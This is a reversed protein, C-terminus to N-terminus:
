AVGADYRADAVCRAHYAERLRRAYTGVQGSGIAHGDVAVVPLIERVASSIWVEDARYLQGRTVAEERWRLGMAEALPRLGAKTIGPLCDSCPTIIDTGVRLLVNSTVGETVHGERDVYFAEHAGVSEAQMLGTKGVLYNTTKLLPLHRSAEFTVATVGQDYASPEPAHVERSIVVWTPASAGFVGSTNVGPTVLLNVRLEAHGSKQYIEMLLTRLEHASLFPAVGFATCSVWLRALHEELAHPFGGGYTRLTEFAGVGRLFGLDLVSVMAEGIPTIRGNVACFDQAV